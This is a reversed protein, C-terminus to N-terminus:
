AASARGDQARASRKRIEQQRPATGPEITTSRLMAVLWALGADMLAVEPVVIHLKFRGLALPADVAVAGFRAAHV